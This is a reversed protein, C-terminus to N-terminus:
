SRLEELHREHGRVAADETTYQELVRSNPQGPGRPFHCTEWIPGRGMSAIKSLRVTSLSGFEGHDEAIREWGKMITM